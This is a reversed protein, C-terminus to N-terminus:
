SFIRVFGCHSGAKALCVDTKYFGHTDPTGKDELLANVRNEVEAITPKISFVFKGTKTNYATWFGDDTDLFQHIHKPYRQAFNRAM